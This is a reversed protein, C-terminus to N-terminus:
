NKKLYEVCEELLKEFDPNEKWKQMIYKRLKQHKPYGIDKEKFLNKFEINLLVTLSEKLDHFKEYSLKKRLPKEFYYHFQLHMLEHACSILIKEIKWFINTMFSNEKPNYPCRGISTINCTFEKTYIKHKTIDELKKFYKDNMKDWKKQIVKLKEMNKEKNQQYGRMLMSITEKKVKMWSKGKLKKLVEPRLSKTFDNGWHLNSNACEWYNKADEEIDFKFIVKPM